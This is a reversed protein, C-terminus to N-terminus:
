PDRGRPRLRLAVLAQAPRRTFVAGPGEHKPALERWPRNPSHECHLTAAQRGLQDDTQRHEGERPDDDPLRALDGGRREVGLDPGFEHGIGDAEAEAQEPGPEDGRRGDAPPARLGVIRAPDVPPRHAPEAGAISVKAPSAWPKATASVGMLRSHHMTPTVSPVATPTSGPRPGATVMASSSGRVKLTSAVAAKM